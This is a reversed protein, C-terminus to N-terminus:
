LVKKWELVKWIIGGGGVTNDIGIIDKRTSISYTDFREIWIDGCYGCRKISVKDLSLEKLKDQVDDPLQEFMHNFINPRTASCAKSPCESPRKKVM